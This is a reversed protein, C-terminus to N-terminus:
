VCCVKLEFLQIGFGKANNIIQCVDLLLPNNYAEVLEQIRKKHLDFPLAQLKMAGKETDKIRPVRPLKSYRNIAVDLHLSGEISTMFVQTLFEEECKILYIKSVEL